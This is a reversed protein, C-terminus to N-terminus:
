RMLAHFRTAMVVRILVRYNAASGTMRMLHPITIARWRHAAIKAASVLSSLRAAAQPVLSTGARAANTQSYGDSRRIKLGWRLPTTSPLIRTQCLEAARQGDRNRIAELIEAQQACTERELAIQDPAVYPGPGSRIGALGFLGTSAAGRGSNM